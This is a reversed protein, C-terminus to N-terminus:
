SLDCVLALLHDESIDEYLNFVKTKPQTLVVPKITGTKLKRESGQKKANLGFIMAAKQNTNLLNTTLM